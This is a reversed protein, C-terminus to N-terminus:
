PPPASAVYEGWEDMLPRRKMLADGRRYAQETADGVAHALAAEIVERPHPTCDGAWDRFSSRFGHVTYEGKGMRSLLKLLAMDSLEGGRPSPFVRGARDAFPRAYALINVARPPLPVRHERGSKMREGPVTWLALDLDVEDWTMARVEGSRAATLILFELAMPAVGLRERLSAVFAPVETYPMAPHHGRSLKAPKPLTLALHGKWRAPNEGERHGEVRAADLVREIRGRLRQATEPKTQWIPRLVDLVHATAVDAVPMEWIASAHQELTQRWQRVHVPNKWVPEHSEILREAVSRFTVREAQAPQASRAELPDVGLAVQERCAEAIERAKALAIASAPGIGMERRRGNISYLFIWQRSGGKRVALYLGGGDAYRGPESLAKVGKATLRNLQGVPASKM